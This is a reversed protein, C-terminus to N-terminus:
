VNICFLNYFFSFQKNQKTTIKKELVLHTRFANQDSNQPLNHFFIAYSNSVTDEILFAALACQTGTCFRSQCGGLARTGSLHSDGRYIWIQFGHTVLPKIADRKTDSPRVLYM